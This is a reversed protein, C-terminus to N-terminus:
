KIDKLIESLLQEEEFTLDAYQTISFSTALKKLGREKTLDAGLEDKVTEFFEYAKNNRRKLIDILRQLKSTDM